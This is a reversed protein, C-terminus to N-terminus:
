FVIHQTDLFFYGGLGDKNEPGFLHDAGSFDSPSFAGNKWSPAPFKGAGAEVEM